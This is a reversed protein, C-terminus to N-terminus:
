LDNPETEGSRLKRVHPVQVQAQRVEIVRAVPKAPAIPTPAAVIPKPEIPEVVVPPMAKPVEIVMPAPAPVNENSQTIASHDCRECPTTPCEDCEDCNRTCGTLSLIAIAGIFIALTRRM